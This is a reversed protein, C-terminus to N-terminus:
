GPCILIVTIRSVRATLKALYYIKIFNNSHMFFKIFKEHMEAKTKNDKIILGALNNEAPQM